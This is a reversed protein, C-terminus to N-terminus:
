EYALDIMIQKAEQIKTGIVSWNTSDPQVPGFDKVLTEPALGKKAPYDFHEGTLYLQVKESLMFEIFKTAKDKQKSNVAVGAGTGNVHVGNNNMKLFKIKVPLGPQQNLLLGLYYSNTIGFACDGNAISKLIATDDKYVIPQSRNELLGQVIGKAKKSGYNAILGSVLGENYSSQSTRLCLTGAWEPKSLDEYTNIMSVDVSDDYVLTRARYTIFSWMKDSDKLSAEVNNDIFTSSLPAFLNNNKLEQLYVGDKVFVVDAPSSAGDTKLKMFIDSVKLENIEIKDGGAQAYMDAVVQMRATPRDTYLVVDAFAPVALLVSALVSVFKM